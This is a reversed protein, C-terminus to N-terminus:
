KDEFLHIRGCTVLGCVTVERRERSAAEILGESRLAKALARSDGPLGAAQKWGPWDCVALFAFAAADFEGSARLIARDNREHRRANSKLM